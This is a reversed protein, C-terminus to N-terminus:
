TGVHDDIRECEGEIIRGEDDRQKFPNNALARLIDYRRAERAQISDQGFLAEWLPDRGPITM